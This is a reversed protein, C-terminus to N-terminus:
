CGHGDGNFLAIVDQDSLDIFSGKDLPTEGFVVVHNEEPGVMVAAFSTFFAGGNELRLGVIRARLRLWQSLKRARFAAITEARGPIPAGCQARTEPRLNWDCDQCPCRTLYSLAWIHGNSCSFGGTQVTPDHIHHQRDEDWFEDHPIVGDNRPPGAATVSHRKGEFLCTPCRM